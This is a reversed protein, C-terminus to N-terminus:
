LIRRCAFSARAPGARISALCVFLCVFLCVLLRVSGLVVRGSRRRLSRRRPQARLPQLCGPRQPAGAAGLRPARRQLRRRRGHCVAVGRRVEAAGAGRGAAGRWAARQSRCTRAARASWPGLQTCPITCPMRRPRQETQQAHPCSLFRVLCRGGSLGVRRQPPRHPRGPLGFRGVRLRGVRRPPRAGGDGHENELHNRRGGVLPGGARVAPLCAVPHRRVASARGIRAAGGPPQGSRPGDRLPVAHRPAPMRVATMFDLGRHGRVRRMRRIPRLAACRMRPPASPCRTSRRLPRAASRQNGVREHQGSRVCVFQTAAERPRNRVIFSGRVVGRRADTANL